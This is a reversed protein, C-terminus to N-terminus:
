EMKRGGGGSVQNGQTVPAFLPQQVGNPMATSRRLTSLLIFLPFAFFPPFLRPYTHAGHRNLSRSLPWSRVACIRVFPMGLSRRM